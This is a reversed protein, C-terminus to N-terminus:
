TKSRTLYNFLEGQAYDVDIGIYKLVKRCGLQFMSYKYLAPHILKLIQFKSIGKELHEGFMCFICGTNDIGKDYIKAYALKNIKIYSWIDKANWFSLPSSTPRNSKFNNCGNKLYSTKRLFSDDVILGVVAKLGSKKEFKKVPNKKLFNCCKASIKFPADILNKWKEPLKGNGKNDGHLRKNLLKKSKTNRIEEIKQAM